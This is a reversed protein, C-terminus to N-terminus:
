IFLFQLLLSLQKYVCCHLIEHLEQGYEADSRLIRREHVLKITKNKLVTVVAWTLLGMVTNKKRTCLKYMFLFM